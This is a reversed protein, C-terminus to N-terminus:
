PEEVPRGSRERAILEGAGRALLEEALRTGLAVAEEAASTGRASL